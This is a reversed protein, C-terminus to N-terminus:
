QPCSAPLQVTVVAEDRSQAGFSDEALLTIIHQGARNFPVQVSPGVGSFISGNQLWTLRTLNGDADQTAAANLTATAVCGTTASITQDPGAAAVPMRNLLPSDATIAMGVSFHHGDLSGTLQGSVSMFGNGAPNVTFDLKTASVTLLNNGFHAYFRSAPPVKATLGHAGGLTIRFPKLNRVLAGSFSDGALKFGGLLLRTQTVLFRCVQTDSPVCNGDDSRVYILADQVAPSAHEDEVSLSVTGTSARGALDIRYDTFSDEVPNTAPGVQLNDLYYIGATPTPVNLAISFRLDSYSAGNLLARLNDPVPFELTHFQDLSLGTLEKQGLYANNLGASPLTVFLQVAGLWTPNPQPSPVRIDLKIVPDVPAISTLPLSTITTYGQPSVALGFNGQTKNEFSTGVISGSSISWDGADEMGLIRPLDPESITSTEPITSSVAFNDLLYSGSVNAPVNLVVSFTLDAYNGQLKTHLDAPLDFSLTTFKDLDIGTLERQGVYANYVGLSPVSVFVQAAGYWSPNPQPSPVRLDFSIRAAVQGLPGLLRSRVVTYGNTRVELASNGQTRTTNNGVIQGGEATWDAASEFGLVRVADSASAV